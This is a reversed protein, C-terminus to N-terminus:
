LGDGEGGGETTALEQINEELCKLFAEIDALAKQRGTIGNFQVNLEATGRFSGFTVAKGDAIRRAVGSTVSKVESVTVTVRATIEFERATDYRNDVSLTRQLTEIVRPKM